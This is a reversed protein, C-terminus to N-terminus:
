SQAPVVNIMWTVGFQDTVVGFKPSWFTKSLPADIKGGQALANFYQDAEAESSLSLALSVGKFEPKGASNCDSAMITTGGIKFTSHMIKDAAPPTQGPACGGDGEHPPADQFRMLAGVEANLASKYFNIAEECRGDFNLYAEVFKTTTSM